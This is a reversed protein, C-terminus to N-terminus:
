FFDIWPQDGASSLKDQFNKIPETWDKIKTAVVVWGGDGLKELLLIVCKFGM